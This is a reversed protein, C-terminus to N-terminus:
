PADAIEFAHTQDIISVTTFGKTQMKDRKWM